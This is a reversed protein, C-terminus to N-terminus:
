GAVDVIRVAITERYLFEHRKEREAVDVLVRQAVEITLARTIAGGCLEDGQSSSL